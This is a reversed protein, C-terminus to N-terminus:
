NVLLCIEIIILGNIQKSNYIYLYKKFIGVFIKINKIIRDIRMFNNSHFVPIIKIPIGFVSYIYKNLINPTIFPM